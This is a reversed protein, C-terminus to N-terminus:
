MKRTYKCYHTCVNDYQDGMPISGVVRANSAGHEVLWIEGAVEREFEVDRNELWVMYNYDHMIIVLM